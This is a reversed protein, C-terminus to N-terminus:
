RHIKEFLFSITSHQILTEVNWKQYVSVTNIKLNCWRVGEKGFMEKIDQYLNHKTEKSIRLMM